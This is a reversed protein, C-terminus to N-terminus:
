ALIHAGKWFGYSRTGIDLKFKRAWVLFKSGDKVRTMNLTEGPEM